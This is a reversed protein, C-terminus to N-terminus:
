EEQQSIGRAPVRREYPCEEPTDVGGTDGAGERLSRGAASVACEEKGSAFPLAQQLFHLLGKCPLNQTM